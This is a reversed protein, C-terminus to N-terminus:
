RPSACAARHVRCAGRGALRGRAAAVHRAPRAAFAPASGARRPGCCRSASAGRGAAGASRGGARFGRLPAAARAHAPRQGEADVCRRAADTRLDGGRRRRGTRAPALTEVYAGICIHQGNDLVRGHWVVDRARGGPPPRWRSCRSARAPACDGRGGRRARGLRRRRRRDSGTPESGAAMTLSRALQTQMAIWLKRLPTLSIRQHLVAFDDDEIERLLTRYINAMMLGPKQAARDADGLLALAEDYTRHAREAQFRM